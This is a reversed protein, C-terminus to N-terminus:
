PATRYAPEVPHKVIMQDFRFIGLERHELHSGVEKSICHAVYCRAGDSDEFYRM